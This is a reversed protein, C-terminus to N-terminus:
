TATWREEEAREDLRPIVGALVRHLGRAAEHGAALVDEHTGPTGAVNTVCSVGLVRMGLAVGAVAEPVTSMGVATGGARRMFETEAPTEYSPGPLAVYVGRAMRIEERGAV